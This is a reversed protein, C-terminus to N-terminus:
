TEDPILGQPLPQLLVPPGFDFDSDSIEPKEMRDDHLNKFPFHSIFM